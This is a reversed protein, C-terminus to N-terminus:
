PNYTWIQKNQNKDVFFYNGDYATGQQNLSPETASYFYIPIGVLSLNLGNQNFADKTHYSYIRQLNSDIFAKEGVEKVSAPITLSELAKTNAFAFSGIKELAGNELNKILVSNLSICDNFAYDDIVKVGKGM